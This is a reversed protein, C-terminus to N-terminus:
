AGKQLRGHSDQMGDSMLTHLLFACSQHRAGRATAADRPLTTGSAFSRRGLDFPKRYLSTRSSVFRVYIRLPLLIGGHRLRNRGKALRRQGGRHEMDQKRKGVTRQM